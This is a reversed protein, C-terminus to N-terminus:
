ERNQCNHVARFLEQVVVQEPDKLWDQLTPQQSKGSAEKPLKQQQVITDSCLENALIRKHHTQKDNKTSAAFDGLTELWAQSGVLVATYLAAKAGVLAQGATFFIGIYPKTHQWQASRGAWKMAQARVPWFVMYAALGVLAGEVIGYPLPPETRVSHPYKTIKTRVKDALQIADALVPNDSVIAARSPSQQSQPQQQEDVM